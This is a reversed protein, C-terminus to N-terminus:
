ECIQDCVIRGISDDRDKGPANEILVVCFHYLVYNYDKLKINPYERHISPLVNRKERERRHSSTCKTHKAFMRATTQSAQIISLLRLGGM